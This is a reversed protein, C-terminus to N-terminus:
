REEDEPRPEPAAEGTAEVAGTDIDTEVVEAATPEGTEDVTEPPAVSGAAADVVAPDVGDEAGVAADGATAADADGGGSRRRRTRRAEAAQQGAIRAARSGPRSAERERRRELEDEPLRAVIITIHCTRKRIRTARGRARPRFRRLTKGEDAFCAAVFLEDPAQADNHEANAVASDLLKAIPVAPGRETFRLLDRAAAVDQGRILDLVPRAKFASMRAHRLVARTGPRENTRTPATM